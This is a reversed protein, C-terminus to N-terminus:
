VRSSSALPAATGLRLQWTEQPDAGQIFPLQTTFLSALTM